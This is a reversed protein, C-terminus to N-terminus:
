VQTFEAVQLVFLTARKSGPVDAPSVHNRIISIVDDIRSEEAGIMVTSSGRKIFGGTSAIRTVRYGNTILAQSVAETDKDQLIAIILKM